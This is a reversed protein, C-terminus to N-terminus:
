LEELRCLEASAKRRIVILAVVVGAVAVIPVISALGSLSLSPRPGWARWIMVFLLQAVLLIAGQNAARKTRRARLRALALYVETSQAAPRWTGRRNVIAITWAAMTLVVVNVIFWTSVPGPHRIGAFLALALFVVTVAVDGAVSWRMRRRQADLLARLESARTADTSEPASGKWDDVLAEWGTQNTVTM